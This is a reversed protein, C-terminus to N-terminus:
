GNWWLPAGSGHVGGCVGTLHAGHMEWRSVASLTVLVARRVVTHLTRPARARAPAPRPPSCSRAGACPPGKRCPRPRPGRTRRAAPPPWQLPPAGGLAGGATEGHRELPHGANLSVHADIDQRRSPLVPRVALRVHREERRHPFLDGDGSGAEPHAPRTLSPAGGRVVVRRASASIRPIPPPPCTRPWERFVRPAAPAPDPAGYPPYRCGSVMPTRRHEVVATACGGEATM